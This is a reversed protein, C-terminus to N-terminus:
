FNPFAGVVNNVVPVNKAKESVVHKEKKEVKGFNHNGISTFGPKANSSGGRANQFRGETAPAGAQTQISITNLSVSSFDVNESFTFLIEQNVKWVSNETLSIRTLQFGDGGSGGDSSCASVVLGFALFFLPRSLSRHRM